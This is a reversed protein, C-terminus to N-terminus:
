AKDGRLTETGLTILTLIEHKGESFEEAEKRSAFAPIYYLGEPLSAEHDGIAMKRNATMVAYLTM